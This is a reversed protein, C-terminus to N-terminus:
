RSTEFRLSKEVSKELWYVQLDIKSVGPIPSNPVVAWRVKYGQPDHAPIEQFQSDYYREAVANDLLGASAYSFSLEEMVMSGIEAAVWRKRDEFSMNSSQAVIFSSSMVVIALLGISLVVEVISFGKQPNKIIQSKM